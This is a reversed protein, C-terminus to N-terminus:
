NIYWRFHINEQGITITKSGSEALRQRATSPGFHAVGFFNGKKAYRTLQKNHQLKLNSIKATYIMCYVEFAIIKTERLILFIIQFRYIFHADTYSYHINLLYIYTIEM